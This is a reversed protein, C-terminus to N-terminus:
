AFPRGLMTRMQQRVGAPARQLVDIRRCGGDCDLAHEHSAVASMEVRCLFTPVATLWHGALIQLRVVPCFQCPHEARFPASVDVRLRCRPHQLVGSRGFPARVRRLGSCPCPDPGVQVQVMLVDDAVAGPRELADLRHVFRKQGCPFLGDALGVRDNASAVDCQGACELALAQCPHPCHRSPLKQYAPVVVESLVSARGVRSTICGPHGQDDGAVRREQYRMDRHVLHGASLLPSLRVPLDARCRM